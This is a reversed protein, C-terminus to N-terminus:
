ILEFNKKLIPKKNKYNMENVGRGPLINLMTQHHEILIPITVPCTHGSIIGKQFIHIIYDKEGINYCNVDILYKIKSLSFYYCRSFLPIILFSLEIQLM